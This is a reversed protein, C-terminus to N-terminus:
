PRPGSGQQFPLFQITQLFWVTSTGCDPRGSFPVGPAYQQPAACFDALSRGNASHLTQYYGDANGINQCHPPTNVDCVLFSSGCSWTQIYYNPNGSHVDGAYSAHNQCDIIRQGIINDASDFYITSAAQPVSARAPQAASFCIVAVAMLLVRTALNVLKM